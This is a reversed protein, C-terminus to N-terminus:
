QEDRRTGLRNRDLSSNRDSLTRQEGREGNESKGMERSGVLGDERREEKCAAGDSGSCYYGFTERIPSSERMGEREREEKERERRSSM